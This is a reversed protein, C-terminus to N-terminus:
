LVRFRDDDFYCLPVTIKNRVRLNERLTLYVLIRERRSLDTNIQIFGTLKLVQELPPFKREYNSHLVPDQRPFAVPYEETITSKSDQEVPEMNQVTLFFRKM